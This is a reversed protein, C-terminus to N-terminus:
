KGRSFWYKWDEATSFYVEDANAVIGLPAPLYFRLSGRLCTLEKMPLPNGTSWCLYCLGEHYLALRARSDWEFRIEEIGMSDETQILSARMPGESGMPRIDLDTRKQRVRQYLVM